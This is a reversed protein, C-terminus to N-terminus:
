LRLPHRCQLATLLCKVSPRAVLSGFGNRMGLGWEGDGKRRVPRKSPLRSLLEVVRGMLLQTLFGRNWLICVHSVSTSICWDHVFLEGLSGTKSRRCSSGGLRARCSAEKAMQRPSPLPRPLRTRCAKALAATDSCACFRVIRDVVSSALNAIFSLGKRVTMADGVSGAAGWITQARDQVPRSLSHKRSKYEVDVLTCAFDTNPGMADIPRNSCQLVAKEFVELWNTSYKGPGYARCGARKMKRCLGM